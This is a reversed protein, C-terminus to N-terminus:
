VYLLSNNNYPLGKRIDHVRLKKPWRDEAGPLLGVFGLLRRLGPINRIRANIAKDVNEWGPRACPSTCCGVNIGVIDMHERWCSGENSKGIRAMQEGCSVAPVRPMLIALPGPSGPDAARNELAACLVQVMQVYCVGPM